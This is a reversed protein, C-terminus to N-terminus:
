LRMSVKSTVSDQRYTVAGTTPLRVAKYSQARLTYQVTGIAAPDSSIAGTTDWYVFNLGGAGGPAVLPGTLLDTAGAGVQRGLWWRGNNSFESYTVVRYSRFTAGIDIGSTDAPSTVAVEAVVTPPVAHGPWSCTPVGLSAPTGVQSIKVAGWKQTVGHFIIASDDATGQISGAVAWLGYRPLSAHKACVVGLGQASRLSISQAGLTILPGRGLRAHRLDWAIADSASRLTEREDIMARLNSYYRVQNLMLQVLSTLLIGAVVIYVLLEILTFGPARNREPWPVRRAKLLAM